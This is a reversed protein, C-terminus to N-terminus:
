ALFKQPWAGDGHPSPLTLPFQTGSKLVTARLRGRDSETARLRGWDSLFLDAGMPMNRYTTTPQPLNRYTTSAMDELVAFGVRINAGKTSKQPWRTGRIFDLWNL